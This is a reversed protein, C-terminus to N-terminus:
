VDLLRLTLEELAERCSEPLTVFAVALSYGFHGDEQLLAVEEEDLADCRIVKGVASWEEDRGALRINLEIQAGSPVSGSGEFALGSVSFNMYEDCTFWEDTSGMLRYLVKIGAYLRPFNRKDPEVRHSEVFHHQAGVVADLRAMVRQRDSDPFNLVAQGGVDLTADHLVVCFTSGETSELVGDLIKPIGSTTLFIQVREVTTM